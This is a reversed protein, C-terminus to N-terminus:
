GSKPICRATSSCRRAARDVVRSKGPLDTQCFCMLCQYLVSETVFDEKLRVAFSSSRVRREPLQEAQRPLNHTRWRGEPIGPSRSSARRCDPYRGMPRGSRGWLTMASISEWCKKIFGTSWAPAIATAVTWM